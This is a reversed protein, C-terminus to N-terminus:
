SYGEEESAIKPLRAEFPELLEGTLNQTVEIARFTNRDHGVPDSIHFPAYGLNEQNEPRRIRVITREKNNWNDLTVNRLIPYNNENDDTYNFDVSWNKGGSDCLVLSKLNRPLSTFFRDYRELISNTAEILEQPNPGEGPIGYSDIRQITPTLDRNETMTRM